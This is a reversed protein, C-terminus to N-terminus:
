LIPIRYFLKFDKETLEAQQKTYEKIIEYDTTDLDKDYYVEKNNDKELDKLTYYKNKFATKIVEEFTWWECNKFLLM